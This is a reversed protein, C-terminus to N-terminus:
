VALHRRLFRGIDDIAARAEPLHTSFQQFVHIMHDWVQLTADVGAEKARAVFDRSDDLVTERDGVQALM